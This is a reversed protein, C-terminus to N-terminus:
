NQAPLNGCLALQKRAAALEFKLEINERELFAARIAIEDEKIRRRDRSKKAAENNKKRRETYTNNKLPNDFKSTGDDSAYCNNNNNNTNVTRRMRPNSITAQGGNAACIQDLMRRRFANYKEASQMDLLSDVATFGATFSLPDKPYAKFPRTVKGDRGPSMISCVPRSSNHSGDSGAESVADSDVSKPKAVEPKQQLLMQQQYAAQMVYQSLHETGPYCSAYSPSSQSVQESPSKSAERYYSPSRSSKSKYTYRDEVIGGSHKLDNIIYHTVPETKLQISQEPSSNPSLSSHSDSSDKCHPDSSRRHRSLDLAGAAQGSYDLVCGPNNNHFNAMEIAKQICFNSKNQIQFTWQHNIINQHRDTTASSLPLHALSVVSALHACVIFSSSGGGYGVVSCSLPTLSGFHMHM